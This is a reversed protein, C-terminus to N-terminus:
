SKRQMVTMFIYKQSPSFETCFPNQSKARQNGQNLTFCDGGLLPVFSPAPSSIGCGFKAVTRITDQEKGFLKRKMAFIFFLRFRLDDM